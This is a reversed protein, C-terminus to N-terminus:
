FSIAMGGNVAYAKARGLSTSDTRFGLRFYQHQISVGTSHFRFDYDARVGWAAALRYTIAAQPFWYGSTFSGAGQVDFDGLPYSLAVHLKPDLRQNVHKFSSTRTTSPNFQVFGDADYYKTANNYETVNSPVNKWNLRGVLDAVALDISFGSKRDRLVIGADMAYGQASLTSLLGFPPNFARPENINIQSAIDDLRITSDVDKANLTTVQGTLSALRLRKGRLYSLGIGGDVQWQGSPNFQFRKSLTVGAASFGKIAGDIHYSRGGAYSSNNKYQRLFDSTDRNIEVLAEARVLAGLRFGDRQVGSEARASLVALNNGNRPSYDGQWQQDFQRMAVQDNAEFGHLSVYAMQQPGNKAPNGVALVGEAFAPLAHGISLVVGLIHKKMKTM